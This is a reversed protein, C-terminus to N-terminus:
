FLDSEEGVDGNETGEALNDFDSDDASAGASFADADRRFQLGLLECRVTKGFDNKQFWFNVIADVYCGAYFKGDSAQVPCASEDRIDPRKKDVPRLVSLAFNGAYGEFDKLAGDYYCCGQPGKAMAQQLLVKTKEKLEEKAVEYMEKRIQKDQEGGPVILLTARYAPPSGQVSTAEFLEPFSLRVDRIKIKTGM